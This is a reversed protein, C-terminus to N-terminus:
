TEFVAERRRGAEALMKAAHEVVASAERKQDELEL